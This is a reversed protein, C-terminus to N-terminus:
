EGERGKKAARPVRKKSGGRAPRPRAPVSESMVNGGSTPTPASGEPTADSDPAAAGTINVEFCRGGNDEETFFNGASFAMIQCFYKGAPEGALSVSHSMSFTLDPVSRTNKGLLLRRRNPLFRVAGTTEVDTEWSITAGEVRVNSVAPFRAQGALELAAQVDLKGHGWISNPAEAAAGTRSASRALVQKLQACTLDPRRSLVLAAAGTVVPAAM